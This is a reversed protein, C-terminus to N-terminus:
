LSSTSSGTTRAPGKGTRSSSGRVANCPGIVSGSTPYRARETGSRVIASSSSSTGIRTTALPHHVVNDFTANPPLSDINVENQLVTGTLKMGDKGGGGVIGIACGAIEGGGEITLSGVYGQSAHVGVARTGVACIIKPNQLYLHIGDSIIAFVQLSGNNAAILNQDPLEQPGV